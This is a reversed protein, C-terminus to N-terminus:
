AAIASRANSGNRSRTQWASVPRTPMAFSSWCRRLSNRPHFSAGSSMSDELLISAVPTSPEAARAPLAVERPDLHADFVTCSRVESWDHDEAEVWFVAVAPVDHEDSVQSALKLATLAKLLTFLPGGFLGAQQGTLVAVTRADSLRECAEIARPPARRRRQQAAIVSAIEQRRRPHAQTQAIARAWDTRNSPDGTFFPALAHFDYAYDAALKRTWPFRRVDVPIRVSSESLPAESINTSVSSSSDCVTALSTLVV